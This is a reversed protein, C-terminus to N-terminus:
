KVLDRFWGPLAGNRRAEALLDDFDSRAVEFKRRLITGKQIRQMLRPRIEKEREDPEDCAYFLKWLDSIERELVGADAELIRIEELTETVKARWFARPDTVGADDVSEVSNSPQQTVSTLETGEGLDKLNDDTIVIPEKRNISPRQLTRGRAYESLSGGSKNPPTPNPTPSPSSCLAVAPILTGIVGFFFVICRRVLTM